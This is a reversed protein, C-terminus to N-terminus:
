RMDPYPIVINSGIDFLYDRSKILSALEFSDKPLYKSLLAALGEHGPHHYDTGCTVLLNNEAAYKAAVAIRGNHGPHVNFTEIGDISDLPALTMSNRFPHAQIILRRDNHFCRYFETIGCNLYSYIEELDNEDIGFVLYDNINESFRLEIGFIVNLGLKQGQEKVINFDNIYYELFENKNCLLASPEFHNTICISSYGLTNYIGAMDSAPIQSCKSVPSTHAHLETKFSYESLM